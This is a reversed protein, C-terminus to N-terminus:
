ADRLDIISFLGGFNRFRSRDGTEGEHTETQQALAFVAVAIEILMLIPDTPLEVIPTFSFDGVPFSGVRCIIAINLITLVGTFTLQPLPPLQTLRANAYLSLAGYRLKTRYRPSRSTAFRDIVRGIERESWCNQWAIAFRM